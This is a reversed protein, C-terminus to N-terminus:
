CEGFCICFGWYACEMLLIIIIQLNRANVLWFWWRMYFSWGGHWLLNLIFKWSGFSTNKYLYLSLIHTNLLYYNTEENEFTCHSHFIRLICETNLNSSLIITLIRQNHEDFTLVHRLFSVKGLVRWRKHRGQRVVWCEVIPREGFRDGLCQCVIINFYRFLVIQTNPPIDQVSNYINNNNM